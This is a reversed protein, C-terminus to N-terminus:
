SAMLRRASVEGLKGNRNKAVISICKERDEQNDSLGMFDPRHILIISDAIEEMAGSERLESPEPRGGEDTGTIRSLQALAIIPINLEKATSKLTRTIFAVEKDRQDRLEEQGCMLQLYDIVILRVGKKDVLNKAKEHFDFLKIGSTDDIYLPAGSLGAFHSELQAYEEETLTRGGEFYLKNLKAESRMMRTAFQLSSMELSFFAVPINYDVAANRVINQAFATKGVSPRSAVIILNSNQLGGTIADLALFVSPIGINQFTKWIYTNHTSTLLSLTRDNKQLNEEFSYYHLVSVTVDPKKEM